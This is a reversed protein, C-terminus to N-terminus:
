LGQMTHCQLATYYVCTGPCNTSAENLVGGRNAVYIVETLPERSFVLWGLMQKLLATLLGSIVSGKRVKSAERENGVPQDTVWLHPQASIPDLVKPLDREELGHVPFGGYM